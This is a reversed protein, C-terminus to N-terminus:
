IREKWFVGCLLGMGEGLLACFCCVVLFIGEYPYRYGLAMVIGAAATLLTMWVPLLRLVKGRAYRWFLAQALAFGIVLVAWLLMAQWSNLRDILTEQGPLPASLLLVDM